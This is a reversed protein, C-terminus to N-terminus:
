SIKIERAPIPKAEEKKPIVVNLVGDKYSAKIQDQDVSDPLGFSRKFSRYGFERRLFNDSKEDKEQKKDSSITLMDNEVQIQIEDKAVGPAAIELTFENDGELINVEPSFSSVYGPFFDSLVSGVYAPVGNRCNVVPLM